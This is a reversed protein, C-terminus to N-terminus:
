GTVDDPLTFEGSDDLCRVAVQGSSKRHALVSFTEDVAQAAQGDVIDGSSTPNVPLSANMNVTLDILCGEQKKEEDNSSTM